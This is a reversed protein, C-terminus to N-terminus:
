NSTCCKRFMECPTRWNLCKRKTHNMIWVTNAVEEHTIISFDTGKPYIRRLRGNTNENTGREWPQRAGAFFVRAATDREIM